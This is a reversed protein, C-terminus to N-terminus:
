GNNVTRVNEEPKFNDLLQYEENVKKVVQEYDGRGLKEISEEITSLPADALKKGLITREANAEKAPDIHPVGAGIFRCSRYAGLVMYNNDFMAQLYSPAQILNDIIAIDLWYNYFPQYFQRKLINTRDVMMKYEWAKLAARSGSYAGGFKDLAVEPPIGLTAYVVDINVLFFDKFSEDTSGTHRALKSGVPMNFTQNNTEMAIKSAKADCESTLTELAVGKGKGFAQAMLQTRPDEGDSFQSHEITYPINANTKASKLTSDKYESMSSVTELVALLLSVGRVDSKKGKMGYMLWAQKKGTKRGYTEIRDFDFDSNQVYFAVHKGKKDIEVGDKIINGKTEALEEYKTGIPTKIHVGDITELSLKDGDYRLLCLIDGALLANKLAEAAEDHLNYNESYVSENLEAFLRFQSEADETFKKLIEKTIGTKYKELISFSPTSQLKLGSGVVWLCYKKIANQVVDTKLYASWARVRAAQYNIDVNWPTGLTYPTNEGDWLYTPFDPHESWHKNYQEPEVKKRGINVGLIKM